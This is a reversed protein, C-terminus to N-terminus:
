PRRPRLFSIKPLWVDSTRASPLTGTNTTRYRLTIPFWIRRATLRWPFTEREAVAEPSERNGPRGRVNCRSRANTRDIAEWPQHATLKKPRGFRVGRAKARERGEGTRARLLTREFEALGGLIGGDHPLDHGGASV